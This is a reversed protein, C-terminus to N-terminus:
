YIFVVGDVGNGGKKHEVLKGGANAEDDVAGFIADAGVARQFIGPAERFGGAEERSGGRRGGGGRREGPRAQDSGGRNVARGGALEGEAAAGGEDGDVDDAGHETHIGDGHAGHDLGAIQRPDEVDGGGFAALTFEAKPGAFEKLGFEAMHGGAPGQLRDHAFAPLAPAAGLNFLEKEGGPGADEAPVAGAVEGAFGHVV